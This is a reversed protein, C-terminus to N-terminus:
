EVIIGLLDDIHGRDFGIVMSGNIEIVPVSMQGTKRIMDALAEEDNEVNLERYSIGHKDFYKKAVTCYPCQNTTYILIM